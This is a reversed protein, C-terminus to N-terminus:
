TMNGGSVPVYFPDLQLVQTLYSLPAPSPLTHVPVTVNSAPGALSYILSPFMAARGTSGAPHATAHVICTATAITPCCMSILSAILSYVRHDFLVWLLLTACSCICVSERMCVAVGEGERM